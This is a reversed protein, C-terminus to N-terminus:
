AGVAVLESVGARDCLFVLAESALKAASMLAKPKDTLLKVWSALYQAHDARPTSSLGFRAMTLAAGMEAVLEEFAYAQDGFRGELTRGLRPGTWHVHEHASTAYYASGSSFQAFHPLQITDTSPRYFARDGGHAVVAGVSSLFADVGACREEESLADAVEREYGDVQAVNFLAFFRPVIRSGREDTEEGEERPERAKALVWRIGTTSHEGKRVQAGAAQWQRYTGWLGEGFGQKLASFALSWVNAGRYHKGSDVNLPALVDPSGLRQWPLVFGGPGDDVMTVLQGVIGACWDEYASVM